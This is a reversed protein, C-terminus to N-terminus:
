LNQAHRLRRRMVTLLQPEPGDITQSIRKRDTNPVYPSKIYNKIFSNFIEERTFGEAELNRGIDLAALYRKASNGALIPKDMIYEIVEEKSLGVMRGLRTKQRIVRSHNIGIFQPYDLIIKKIRDKNELGYISIAKELFKSHDRSVFSPHKLIAKKIRNKKYKGYIKSLEDVVLRHNYDLFPPFRKLVKKIKEFDCGYLRSIDEFKERLETRGLSQQHFSKSEELIEAEEKEFGVAILEEISM